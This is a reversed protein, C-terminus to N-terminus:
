NAVFQKLWQTTAQNAPFFSEIALEALTIDIPTGFVTTTSIFSLEDDGTRLRFPIAIKAADVKSNIHSGKPAPYSKLENELELLVADATIEVQRHLRELLHARWEVFNIIQPALGDPHLSLRLVNVPPQLQAPNVNKLFMGVSRNAAILNWHRDLALAPNPEHGQLILDITQRAAQLAEDDLSREPFITAFGASTLLVNRERLPIVLQEALRLIMERSPRARGTEIFSLHKPSIDANLALDLQSLRRRGRWERLLEGFKKSAVANM